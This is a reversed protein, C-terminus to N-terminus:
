NFWNDVQTIKCTVKSATTVTYSSIDWQIRDNGPVSNPLTTGNNILTGSPDRFEYEFLYSKSTSTQNSITGAMMPYGLSDVECKDIKLTYTSPDAKGTADKLAVTATGALVVFAVFLIIAIITGVAGLILGALAMGKGTGGLEKAKKMGLFGFVIALIGAIPGLCVFTLIGLVLAAVAMGNNPNPAGGTQAMPPPAFGGAPPAPPAPPPTGGTPPPPPPLDTM